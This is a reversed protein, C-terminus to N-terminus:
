RVIKMSIVCHQGWHDALEKGYPQRLVEIESCEIRAFKIGEFEDLALFHDIRIPPLPWPFLSNGDANPLTEKAKKHHSHVTYRYEGDDDGHVERWLDRTKAVGDLTRLKEYYPSIDFVNFDGCVLFGTRQPDILESAIAEELATKILSKLDETNSQRHTYGGLVDYHSNVVMLKMPTDVGQADAVQFCTCICGQQTFPVSKRFTKKWWKLKRLPGEKRWAEYLGGTQKWYMYWWDTYNSGSSSSYGELVDHSSKLARDINYTYSGWVEQLLALDHKAAMEGIGRSREEEVADAMNAANPDAMLGSM